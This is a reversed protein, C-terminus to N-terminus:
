NEKMQEKGKICEIYVQFDKLNLPKLIGDVM